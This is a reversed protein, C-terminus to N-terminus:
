MLYNDPLDNELLIVCNEDAYGRIHEIAEKFSSVVHLNELNFDTTKVGDALPESRKKGVLYIVDCKEGSAKGLNFNAQYEAEGLEILGPTVIIKKCNEFSALVNVAELCGEPNANYADDIVTSGKIYPKMELRHEVPKLSATAYSIEKASVGMEYAMLAAATINLVNYAGLLGTTLTVTEEGLELDFQAGKSSYKVNQIVVDNRESFGYSITNELPLIEAIPASDGNVFCKGKSKKVYDYLEFKTKLINERKKFTSLHQDGVATIIGNQPGAINCLEKIDGVRKAGMEAVFVQHTNNMKERVTRVIGMPTNFSEPTVLTNYKESLMRGLIFKTGTKGYSGTVGIIKLNGNRKIIKKADNIYYASIMKEIPRNIIGCIFVGFVSSLGTVLFSTTCVYADFALGNKEEFWMKMFFSLIFVASVIIGATVYMRKVRPTYVLPKIAIEQRAKNLFISFLLVIVSCLLFPINYWVNWIGLVTVMSIAVMSTCFSAMPATLAWKLYRTVMYSNQQLMHFTRNLKFLSALLLLGYAIFFLVTETM